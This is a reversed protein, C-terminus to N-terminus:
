ERGIEEEEASSGEPFQDEDSSSSSSSIDDDELKSIQCDDDELKQKVGPFPLKLVSKIQCNM